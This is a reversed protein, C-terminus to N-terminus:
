LLFGLLSPTYWVFQIPHLPPLLTKSFSPPCSRHLGHFFRRRVGSRLVAFFPPSARSPFCYCADLLFLGALIPIGLGIGSALLLFSGGFFAQFPSPPFCNHCGFFPFFAGGAYDVAFSPFAAKRSGLEGDEWILLLVFVVAPVYLLCKRELNSPPPPTFTKFLVASSL